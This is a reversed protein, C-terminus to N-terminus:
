LLDTISLHTDQLHSSVHLQSAVKAIGSTTDQLHTKIKSHIGRQTRSLQINLVSIM